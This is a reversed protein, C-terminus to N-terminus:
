PCSQTSRLHMSNLCRLLLKYLGEFLCAHSRLCCVASTDMSHSTDINSEATAGPDDECHGTSIPVQLQQMVSSPAPSAETFGSHDSHPALWYLSFYTPSPCLSDSALSTQNPRVFRFSGSLYLRSDLTTLVSSDGFYCSM